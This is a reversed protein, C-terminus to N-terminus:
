TLLVPLVPVLSALIHGFNYEKEGVFEWLIIFMAYLLAIEISASKYNFVFDVIMMLWAILIGIVLQKIYRLSLLNIAIFLRMLKLKSIIFLNKIINM